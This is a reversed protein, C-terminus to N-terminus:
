VRPSKNEVSPQKNQKNWKSLDRQYKIYNILYVLCSILGGLNAASGHLLTFAPPKPQQGAPAFMGISSTKPSITAADGKPQSINQNKLIAKIIENPIKAELDTVINKAIDKCAFKEEKEMSECFLHLEVLRDNIPIGPQVVNEDKVWRLLEKLININIDDSEPIQKLYKEAWKNNKEEQQRLQAQLQTIQNDLDQLKQLLIPELMSITDKINNIHLNITDFDNAASSQLYQLSLIISKLFVKNDVLLRKNQFENLTHKSEIDKIEAIWDICGKITNEKIELTPM